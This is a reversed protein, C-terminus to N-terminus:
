SQDPNLQVPHILRQAESVPGKLHEPIEVAQRDALAFAVPLIESIWPALSPEEYRIVRALEKLEDESHGAFHAISTAYVLVRDMRLKATLDSAAAMVTSEIARPIRLEQQVIRRM